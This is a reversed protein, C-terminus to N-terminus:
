TLAGAIAGILASALAVGAAALLAKWGARSRTHGTLTLVTMIATGALVTGFLTMTLWGCFAAVGVRVYSNNSTRQVPVAAGATLSQSITADLDVTKGDDSRFTGDCQTHREKTAGVEACSRVVFLGPTGAWRAAYSLDPVSDLLTAGAGALLAAM